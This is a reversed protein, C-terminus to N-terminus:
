HHSIDLQSSPSYSKMPSVGLKSSSGRSTFYGYKYAAICVNLPLDQVQLDYSVISASVEAMSLMWYLLM